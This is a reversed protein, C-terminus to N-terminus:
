ADAMNPAFGLKLTPSVGWKARSNTTITPSDLRDRLLEEFAGTLTRRFFNLSFECTTTHRGEWYHWAWKTRTFAHDICYSVGAIFDPVISLRCVRALAVLAQEYLFGFKRDCELCFAPLAVREAVM